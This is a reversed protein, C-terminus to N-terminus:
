EKITSSALRFYGILHTAVGWAALIWLDASLLPELGLMVARMSRVAYFTPTMHALVRQWPPMIEIPSVTGSIFMLIIVLFSSVNVYFRYRKCMSAIATFLGNGMFTQLLIVAAWPGTREPWPWPVVQRCVAMSLALISLVLISAALTRGLVLTWRSAPTVLFTFISGQEWDRVWFTGNNTHTLSLIFFAIMGATMFATMTEAGYRDNELRIDMDPFERRSVRGAIRLLQGSLERDLLPNRGALIVSFCIPNMGRVSVLMSTKGATLEARGQEESGHCLPTVGIGDLEMQLVQKMSADAAHFGIAVSRGLWVTFVQNAIVLFAIALCVSVFAEIPRRWWVRLHTLCLCAVQRIFTM